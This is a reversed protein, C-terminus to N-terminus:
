HRTQAAAVQENRRRMWEATDINDARAPDRPDIADHSRGRAGVPTIPKPAKSGALDNGGAAAQAKARRELEIGMKVPPLGMIRSAENLDGGLEFILRPGEGTDLAAELFAFYTAQSVADERDMLQKLGEVRSNFQADGFAQRGALAAANCRSNFEAQAALVAARENALRDVESAPVVDGAAAEGPKAGATAGAAKAQAERLQATLKAIRKDRWDGAPAASTAAAGAAAGSGTAESGPAAGDQHGAGEGAEGSGGSGAGAGASDGSGSAGTEGSGAGSAEGGGGGAGDGDVTLVWKAEPWDVLSTFRGFLM